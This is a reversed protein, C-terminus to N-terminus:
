RVVPVGEATLVPMSKLRHPYSHMYEPTLQVPELGGIECVPCCEASIRPMVIHCYSCLDAELVGAEALAAAHDVLAQRQLARNARWEEQLREQEENALRTREQMIRRAVDPHEDRRLQRDNTDVPLNRPRNAKVRFHFRNEPSTREVLGIAPSALVDLYRLMVGLPDVLVANEAYSFFWIAQKSEIDRGRQKSREFMTRRLNIAEEMWDLFGFKKRVAELLTHPTLITGVSANLIFRELVYPQWRFRGADVIWDGKVAVGVFWPWEEFGYKTQWRQLITNAKASSAAVLRKERAAVAKPSRMVQIETLLHSYKGRMQRQKDALAREADVEDQRKKQNERIRQNNAEARQALKDREQQILPQGDYLSCRFWYREARMLVEKRLREIDAVVAEPVDGLNIEMLNDLAEAKPREVGHTVKIEIFLRTGNNLTATLDPWWRGEKQESVVASFETWQPKFYASSSLSSGNVLTASLPIDYAPLTVAQADLILQKGMRHLATEYGGPCDAGRWHSFYNRKSKPKNAVLKSGCSPCVCGCALGQEVEYPPYLRGKREGFPVKLNSTSREM